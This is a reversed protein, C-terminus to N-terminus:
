RARGPQGLALDGLLPDEVVGPHLPQPLDVLQLGGPPDIGGGLVRSKLVGEPRHVQGAPRHGDEPVAEALDAGVQGAAGVDLRQHAHGGQQVVHPVPREPMEEVGVEEGIVAQVVFDDAAVDDTQSNPVQQAAHAAIGGAPQFGASVSSGSCTAKRM